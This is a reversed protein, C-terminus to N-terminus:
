DGWATVGRPGGAIPQTLGEEVDEPRAQRPGTKGVQVGTGARYADLCEAPTRGEATEDFSPRSGDSGNARIETSQLEFGASKEHLATGHRPDQLFGRRDHQREIYDEEIWGILGGRLICGRQLCHRIARPVQECRIRQDDGLVGAACRQRLARARKRAPTHQLLAIDSQAEIRNFTGARFRALVRFDLTLFAKISRKRSKPVTLVKHHLRLVEKSTRKRQEDTEKTM